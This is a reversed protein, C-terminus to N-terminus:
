YFFNYFQYLVIINLHPLSWLFLNKYKNDNIKLFNKNSLTLTLLFFIPIFYRGQVGQIYDIRGIDTFYIYQAIQTLFITSFFILFVTIKVLSFIKFFNFNIIFFIMLMIAFVLILFYNIIIDIRGLAGIMMAIYKLFNVLTNKILIEIILFLDQPLSILNIPPTTSYDNIFLTSLTFFILLILYQMTKKESIKFILILPLVFFSIYTPRGVILLFSVFIILILFFEKKFVSIKKQDTIANTLFLIILTDIFLMVDQNFSGFLTLTMPMSLLIFLFDKGSRLYKLTMYGILVAAFCNFLRGGYFLIMVNNTFIELFNTGVKSVLYGSVPYNHLNSLNAKEYKDTLSYTQYNDLFFNLTYKYNRNIKWKNKAIVEFDDSFKKIGSDVNLEGKIYVNEVSTSKQFHSYEDPSYFPPTIFIYSIIYILSTLLFYNHIKFINKNEFLM